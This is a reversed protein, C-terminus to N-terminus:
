LARACVIQMHGFTKLVPTSYLVARKLRGHRRPPQHKTPAGNTRVPRLLARVDRVGRGPDYYSRERTEFGNALLIGDLAREELAYQYFSAGESVLQAQRAEIRRRLLRRSLNAYPVSLLLLGGDALVRRAEQLIAAGCDRYHEIVGLSLYVDFSEDAFPLAALDAVLVDSDPWRERHREIAVESLDVGTAAVGRDSFYRVYQGLGCGAELLREGRQIRRELFRTLESTAAVALLHEFSAAAWRESWLDEEPRHTYYGISGRM